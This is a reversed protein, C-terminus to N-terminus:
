NLGVPKDLFLEVFEAFKESHGEVGAPLMGGGGGDGAQEVAKGAVHRAGAFDDFGVAETEFDDFGVLTFDEADAGAGYGGAGGRGRGARLSRSLRGGPWVEGHGRPKKQPRQPLDKTAVRLM